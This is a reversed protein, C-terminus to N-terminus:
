QMSDFEQRCLRLRLLAYPIGQFKSIHNAPLFIIGVTYLFPFVM